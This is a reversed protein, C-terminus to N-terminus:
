RWCANGDFFRQDLRDRIQAPTMSKARAAALEIALPIGDLSTCIEQVATLHQEIEFGPSVARAREGFLEVAPASDGFVGLPGLVTVLRSSQLHVKLEVLANEREILEAARVPLNGKAVSRSM